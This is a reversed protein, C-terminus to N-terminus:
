IEGEVMGLVDLEGKVLKEFEEREIGSARALLFLSRISRAVHQRVGFEAQQSREAREAASELKAVTESAASSGSSGRRASEPNTALVWSESEEGIGGSGDDQGQSQSQSRSGRSGSSSSRTPIPHHLDPNHHPIRPDPEKKSSSTTTTTTTLFNAPNAPQLPRNELLDPAHSHIHAEEDPDHNDMAPQVSDYQAFYADEEAATTPSVSTAPPISAATGNTAAPRAASTQAAAGGPYPAPSRNVAPTRSPTADYRAWYDDDDDDDEDEHTTHNWPQSRNAALTSPKTPNARATQFATEAEAISAFGGFNTFAVSDSVGVEGVRWGNGGDPDNVCWVLRFFLGYEKISVMGQLTEEDIRKYTIRVGRDWDLEIEGSSPHPDLHGSRALDTLQPVKAPDYSLLRIWPEMSASSLLQARQRLIPSLAPLVSLPPETSVAAGPLCSLVPTVASRIDPPPILPEMTAAM